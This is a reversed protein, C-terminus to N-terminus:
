WGRRLCPYRYTRLMRQLFSKRLRLLREFKARDMVKTYLIQPKLVEGDVLMDEFTFHRASEDGGKAKRGPKRAKVASREHRTKRASSKSSKAHLVSKKFAAKKRSRTAHASQPSALSFALWAAFVFISPVAVPWNSRTM